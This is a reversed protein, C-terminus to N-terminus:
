MLVLGSSCITSRHSRASLSSVVHSNGNCADEDVILGLRELEVGVHESEHFLGVDGQPLSAPQRNYGWVLWLSGFQQKLRVPVGGGLWELLREDFVPNGEGGKRDVVDVLLEVSKVAKTHPEGLLRDLRARRGGGYEVVRAAVQDLDRALPLHGSVGRQLAGPARHPQGSLSTIASPAACARVDLVM